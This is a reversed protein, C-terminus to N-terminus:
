LSPSSSPSRVKSLVELLVERAPQMLPTHFAGSVALKQAKLAGREAAMKAALELADTHGSIVRGQLLWGDGICRYNADVSTDLWINCTCFELHM